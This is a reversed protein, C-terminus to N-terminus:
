MMQEVLDPDVDSDQFPNDGFPGAPPPNSVHATADHFLEAGGMGQDFEHEELEMDQQDEATMGEFSNNLAEPVTAFQSPAAASSPTTTTALNTDTFHLLYLLTASRAMPSPKTCSMADAARTLIQPCIGRAHNCLDKIFASIEAPDFPRPEPITAVIHACRTSAACTKPYSPAASILDDIRVQFALDEASFPPSAAPAAASNASSSAALGAAHFEAPRCHTNWALEVTAMLTKADAAARKTADAVVDAMSLQAALPPAKSVTSRPATPATKQGLNKRVASRARSPGASAHRASSARGTDRIMAPARGRHAPLVPPATAPAPLAAPTRALNTGIESIKDVLAIMVKEQAAMGSKTTRQFEDIRKELRDVRQDRQDDRAGNTGTERQIMADEEALDVPFRPVTLGGAKAAVLKRLKGSLLAAAQQAETRTCRSFFYSFDAFCERPVPVVAFDYAHPDQANPTQCLKAVAEPMHVSCSIQQVKLPMLTNGLHPDFPHADEPVADLEQATLLPMGPISAAIKRAPPPGNGSPLPATTASPRTAPPNGTGGGLPIMNPNGRTIFTVPQKPPVNLPISPGYGDTEARTRQAKISAMIDQSFRKVTSTASQAIHKNGCTGAPRNCAGFKIFSTCATAGTTNCIFADYGDRPHQAIPYYQEIITKKTTLSVNPPWTYDELDIQAM